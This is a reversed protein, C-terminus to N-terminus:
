ACDPRLAIYLGERATDEQCSGRTSFEQEQIAQQQGPKGSRSEDGAGM